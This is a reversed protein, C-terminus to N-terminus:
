DSNPITYNDSPRIIYSIKNKENVLVYLTITKYREEPWTPVSFSVKYKDNQKIVSISATNIESGGCGDLIFDYGDISLTEKVFDKLEKTCYKSLISDNKAEDDLNIIHASYFSKIMMSTDPTCLSNGDSKGAYSFSFSLM